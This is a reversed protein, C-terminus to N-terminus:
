CKVGFKLELGNSLYIEEYRAFFFFFFFKEFKFNLFKLYFIDVFKLYFTCM